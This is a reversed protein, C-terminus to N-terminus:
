PALTGDQRTNGPRDPDPLREADADIDEDPAGFKEAIRNVQQALARMQGRTAPEDQDNDRAAYEIVWSSLTATVIGVVAVATCMLVVAVVRGFPTVPYFDGYGVTSMTVFAWWVADGFNTINAGPAPREADLVSLSGIWILLAVTGAGYVALRSRIQTGVTAGRGRITLVRLLQLPRLPPLTVITLEVLHRRFWTRRDTALWLRVLYDVVFVAWTTLLIVQAILLADGDFDAIVKWSYLATFVVSAVILPWRTLDRWRHETLGRM